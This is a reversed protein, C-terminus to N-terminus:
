LCAFRPRCLSIKMVCEERVGGRERPKAERSTSPKQRERALNM